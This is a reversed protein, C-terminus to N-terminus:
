PLDEDGYNVPRIEPGRFAAARGGQRFIEVLEQDRGVGVVLALHDFLGDVEMARGRVRYNVLVDKKGRRVMLAPMEAIGRAPFQVYMKRGDDYVREPRWSAKGEVAYAFNLSALDIGTETTEWTERRQERRKEAAAQARLDAQYVFGVYPMVDKRRSLLRFHYVRRDTTIVASTELGSDVPKIFLHTSRGATGSEVQWRASDGVVIENVSEGPELEVDVVHLPAAIITPIGGAGDHVFVLKGGVMMGKSGTGYDAQQRVRRMLSQERDTLRPDPSLIDEAACLPAPLVSLLCWTWLLTRQKRNM